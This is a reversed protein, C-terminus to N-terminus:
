TILQDGCKRILILSIKYDESVCVIKRVEHRVEMVLMKNEIETNKFITKLEM